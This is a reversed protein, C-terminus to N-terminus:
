EVYTVIEKSDLDWVQALERQTDRCEAIIAIETSYQGGMAERQLDTVKAEAKGTERQHKNSGDVKTRDSDESGKERHQDRIDKEEEKSDERTTRISDRITDRGTNSKEM